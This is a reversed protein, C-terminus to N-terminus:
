NSKYEHKLKKGALNKLYSNFNHFIIKEPEYIDEPLNNISFWNYEIVENNDISISGNNSCPLRMFFFTELDRELM